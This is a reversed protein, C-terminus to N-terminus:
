STSDDQLTVAIDRSTHLLRWVEVPDQREVYFMLYPFRGVTVSCLDPISLEYAFRLIGIGPNKGV